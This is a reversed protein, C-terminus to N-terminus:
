IKNVAFVFVFNSKRLCIQFKNAETDPKKREKKEDEFLLLRLIAKQPPDHCNCFTICPKCFVYFYTCINYKYKYLTLWLCQRCIQLLFMNFFLAIQFSFREFLLFVVSPSNKVMSFNLKQSLGRHVTYIFINKIIM